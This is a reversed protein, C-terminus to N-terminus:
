SGSDFIEQLGLLQRVKDYLRQATALANEAEAQDPERPADPYRFVVAYETLEAADHLLPTLESNLTTCQKGLENLDHTRRFAVDHFTLFAKASKEAAQHCHFVSASPEEIALLRAAHLDKGAVTLWRDAENRRWEEPTM